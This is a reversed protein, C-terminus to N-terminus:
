KLHKAMTDAMLKPSADADFYTVFTGGEDMLYFLNSHAMWYNEGEIPAGGDEGTKAYYVRYAKAAVAVQEATGTLGTLRASFHSVYAKMVEPTDRGPDISIFIPQVARGAEGLLTLAASMKQLDLPCVDPCSAYGFYILMPRGSFSTENVVEGDQNILEFPGGVLAKGTVVVRESPSQRGPDLMVFLGYGVGLGIVAAGAMLALRRVLGIKALGVKPSSTGTM